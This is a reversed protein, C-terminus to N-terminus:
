KIILNKAANLVPKGFKVVTTVVIALAGTIGIAKQVGDAAKDVNKHDDRNLKKGQFRQEM